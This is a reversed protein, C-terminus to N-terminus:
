PRFVSSIIIAHGSKQNKTRPGNQCWEIHNKFKPPLFCFDSWAIGWSNQWAKMHFWGEQELVEVVIYFLGRCQIGDM